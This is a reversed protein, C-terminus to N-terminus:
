KDVCMPIIACFKMEISMTYESRLQYAPHAVPTTNHVTMGIHTSVWVKETSNKETLSVNSLM